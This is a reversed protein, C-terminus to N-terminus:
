RPRVREVVTFMLETDEGGEQLLVRPFFTRLTNKTDNRVLRVSGKLGSMEVSRIDNPQDPDVRRRITTMKEFVVNPKWDWSVAVVAPAV